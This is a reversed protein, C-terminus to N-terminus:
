VYVWWRIHVTVLYMSPCVHFWITRYQMTPCRSRSHCTHGAHDQIFHFFRLPLLRRWFIEAAILRWWYSFACLFRSQEPGGSTSSQCFQTIFDTIGRAVILIWQCLTTSFEQLLGYPSCTEVFDIGFGRPGKLIIDLVSCVTVNFSFPIWFVTDTSLSVNARPLTCSSSPVAWSAWAMTLSVGLQFCCWWYRPMSLRFM